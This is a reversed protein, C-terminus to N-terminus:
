EKNPRRCARWYNIILKMTGVIDEYTYGKQFYGQVTIKSHGEILLTKNETTTLFFLLYTKRRLEPDGDILKKLEIGDIRPMNADSLNFFPDAQKSKLYEMAMDGDKLIEIENSIGLDRIAGEIIEM